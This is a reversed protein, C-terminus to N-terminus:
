LDAWGVKIEFARPDKALIVERAAAVEGLDDETNRCNM